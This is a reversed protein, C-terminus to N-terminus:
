HVLRATRAGCRVFYIGRALRSIDLTGEMTIEKQIVPRGEMTYVTVREPTHRGTLVTVTTAAPNPYLQLSKAFFEESATQIDVRSLAENVAAMADVKGWGWRDSISDREHLPGTVSDNRATSCLIERVEASTLDPNAQLLLAVIGTVAPSSMSTGSMAAWVYTRGNFSYTM